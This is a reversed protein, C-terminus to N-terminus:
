EAPQEAGGRPGRVAARALIEVYFADGGDRAVEDMKKNIDNLHVTEATAETVGFRCDFDWYDAGEPLAKGRERRIYKKVDHKIADMVRDSNKGEIHLKFTKKM